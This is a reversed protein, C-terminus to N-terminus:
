AAPVVRIPFGLKAMLRGQVGQITVSALVCGVCNGTLKVHVTTGEIKVLECDGGHKQINPRLEAVADAILKERLAAAAAPDLVPAAPLETAPLTGHM